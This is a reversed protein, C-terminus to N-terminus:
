IAPQKPQNACNCSHGHLPKQNDAAVHPNAMVALRSLILSHDSCEMKYDSGPCYIIEIKVVGIM